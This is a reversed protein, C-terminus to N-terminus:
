KLGMFLMERETVNAFPKLYGANYAQVIAEKWATPCDNTVEIGARPCQLLGDEIMYNRDGM